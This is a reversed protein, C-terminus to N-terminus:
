FSTFFVNLINASKLCYVLLINLTLTNLTKSHIAMFYSIKKKFKHQSMKSPEAGPTRSTKQPSIAESQDSISHSSRCGWARLQRKSTFYKWLNTQILVKNEATQVIVMTIWRHSETQVIVQMICHHEGTQVLVKTIWQYEITQILVQSNNSYPSTLDLPAWSHVLVKKIWHQEVTQILVKTIWM